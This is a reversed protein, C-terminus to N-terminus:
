PNLKIEVNFPEATHQECLVLVNWAAHALHPLGSEADLSDSGLTKAAVLHRMLSDYLANEDLGKKWNDRSYKKAGFSAVNAVHKLAIPFDLVYSLEPKGSNFRLAREPEDPTKEVLPHHIKQRPM